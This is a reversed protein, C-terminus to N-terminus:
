SRQNHLHAFPNYCLHVCIRKFCSCTMPWRWRSYPSYPPSYPGNSFTWNRALWRGDLCLESSELPWMPATVNLFPYLFPIPICLFYSKYLWVSWNWALSRTACPCYWFLQQNALSQCTIKWVFLCVTGYRQLQLNSEEGTRAYGGGPRNDGDSCVILTTCQCTEVTGQNTERHTHKIGVIVSSFM